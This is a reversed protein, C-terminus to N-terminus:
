ARARSPMARENEHEDAGPDYVVCTNRAEHPGLKPILGRLHKTRVVSLLCSEGIKGVQVTVDDRGLGIHHATAEDRNSRM